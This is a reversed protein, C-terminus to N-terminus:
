FNIILYENPITNSFVIGVSDFIYGAKLKKLQFAGSSIDGWTLGLSFFTNLILCV